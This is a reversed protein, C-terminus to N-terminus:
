NDSQIDASIIATDGQRYVAADTTITIKPPIYGEPTVMFNLMINDQQAGQSDYIDTINVTYKKMEAISNKPVAVLKSGKFKIEAEVATGESEFYVKPKKMLPTGFDFDISEFNDASIM